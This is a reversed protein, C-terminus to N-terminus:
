LKLRFNYDPKNFELKNCVYQLIALLPVRRNTTGGFHEFISYYVPRSSAVKRYTKSKSQPSIEYIFDYYIQGMITNLVSSFALLPCILALLGYSTWFDLLTEFPWSLKLLGHSIISWFLSSM